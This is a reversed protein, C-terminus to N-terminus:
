PSNTVCAFPRGDFERLSQMAYEDIPEVMYLVETGRAHLSEVFPSDVVSELSEGAIYYIVTQNAGM